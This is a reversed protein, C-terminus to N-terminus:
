DRNVAGGILYNRIVIALGALGVSDVQRPNPDIAAGALPPKANTSVGMVARWLPTVVQIGIRTEKHPLHIVNPNVIPGESSRLHPTKVRPKPDWLPYAARRSETNYPHTRLPEREASTM